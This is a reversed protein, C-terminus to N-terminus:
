GERAEHQEAIDVLTNSVDILHELPLFMFASKHDYRRIMAGPVADPKGLNWTYNTVTVKM